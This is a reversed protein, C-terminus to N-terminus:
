YAKSRCGGSCFIRCTDGCGVTAYDKEIRKTTLKQSILKKLSQEIRFM